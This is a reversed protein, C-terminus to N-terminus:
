DASILTGEAFRHIISQIFTTYPIGAKKALEKIRVIDGRNVRLSLIKKQITNKAAEEFMKKREKADSSTKFEGREIAKYVEMEESNLYSLDPNKPDFIKKTM